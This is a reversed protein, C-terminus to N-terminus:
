CFPHFFLCFFSSRLTTVFGSSRFFSFFLYDLPARINRSDLFCRLGKHVLFPSVFYTVYQFCVSILHWRVFNMAGPSRFKHVGATIYTDIKFKRLWRGTICFETFNPQRISFASPFYCRHREQKHFGEGRETLLICVFM